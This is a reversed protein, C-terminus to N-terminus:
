AAVGGFSAVAQAETPYIEFVTDLKTLYLLEATRPGVSALKIVAGHRAATLHCAVLEGLGSSDMYTVGGLEIVLHRHGQSILSSVREKLRGPVNAMAVKGSVEVVAVHALRRDSMRM